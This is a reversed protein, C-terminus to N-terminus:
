PRDAVVLRVSGFPTASLSRAGAHDSQQQDRWFHILAAVPILVSFLTTDIFVRSMFGIGILGLVTLINTILM